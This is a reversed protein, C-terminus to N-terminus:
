MGVSSWHYLAAVVLAAARGRAVPGVGRLTVRVRRCHRGARGSDAGCAVRAVGRVEVPSGVPVALNAVHRRHASIASRTGVNGKVHASVDKLPVVERASGARRTPQPAAVPAADREEQRGGERARGGRRVLAVVETKTECTRNGHGFWRRPHHSQRSNGTRTPTRPSTPPCPLRTGKPRKGQNMLSKRPDRRHPRAQGHWSAPRESQADQGGSERLFGRKAM